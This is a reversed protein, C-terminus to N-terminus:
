GTSDLSFWLTCARVSDRGPPRKVSRSVCRIQWFRFYQNRTESAICCPTSSRICTAHELIQHSINQMWLHELHSLWCRAVLAACRARSGPRESARLSPLPELNMPNQQGLSLGLFINSGLLFWVYSPNLIKGLVLGMPNIPVWMDGISRCKVICNNRMILLNLITFMM